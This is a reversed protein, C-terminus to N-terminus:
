TFDLKWMIFIPKVRTHTRLVRGYVKEKIIIDTYAGDEDKPMIYNTNEIKLYSKGVGITPKKLYFSAHTAIGMNRYHLYGNGDFIILDTNHNLLKYTNIILPLLRFSLYGPIYPVDIIDYL